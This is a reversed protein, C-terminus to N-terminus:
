WIKGRPLTRLLNFDAAARSYHIHLSQHFRIFTQIHQGPRSVQHFREIIAAQAAQSAGVAAQEIGSPAANATHTEIVCARQLYGLPVHRSRLDVRDLFLWEVM